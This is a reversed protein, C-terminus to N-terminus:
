SKEFLVYSVEVDTLQGTGEDYPSTFWFFVQGVTPVINILVPLPVGFDNDTVMGVVQESGDALPEPCGFGDADLGDGATMAPITGTCTGFILEDIGVIKEGTVSDDAIKPTMIAGDAIKGETVAGTAIDGTNVNGPAIKDTTIANVGIDENQMRKMPYTTSPTPGDIIASAANRTTVTVQYGTSPSIPNVINTLQLRILTNSPITAASNVTYTFTQGAVSITGPGLGELELLRAASIDTGAPFTIQVSKIAGTTTTRFVIDYYANTNVINNTQRSTVGALAAQTTFDGGSGDQSITPTFTSSIPMNSHYGSTDIGNSNGTTAASVQVPGSLIFLPSSLVTVAIVFVVIVKCLKPKLQSCTSRPPYVM